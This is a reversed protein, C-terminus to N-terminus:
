KIDVEVELGGKFIVTFKTNTYVKIFDAMTLWFKEKFETIIDAERLNKLLEATKIRKVNKEEKESKIISLQNKISDLRVMLSDYKERFVTQDQANIANDNIYKRILSEVVESEETLRAIEKDIELTDTMVLLKKEFNAIYKEKEESLQNMAMMFALKIQEEVVHPSDCQRGNKYKANCRWIVKRYSNTSHWVKSGFAAGCKGCIIKGSFISTCNSYGSHKMRNIEYQVLDFTEKNIIAPHSNEVLYQPVEGRNKKIKKNLFDVTFTKQLTANGAYKENQLIRKIKSHNWKEKGGPTLIKAENLHKAIEGYSKGELFLSFVFRVIKAEREVIKPKGNEGKEYGLTQRYRIEVIGDAMKKRKGWTVNESISRSEEQALSSMITLFLEGKSDLTNINEKEFYVGIGKEKLKRVTTLSDVTNRAFRSVSKTVILDIKGTLADKIMKNFGDRHKTNTGTIGEDTYVSVFNWDEKSKIYRTYYDVQAEYSTLQEEDDTSVRAYAAVKTKQRFAFVNAYRNKTLAPIVTITKAM